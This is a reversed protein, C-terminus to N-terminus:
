KKGLLEGNPLLNVPVKIGDASRQYRVCHTFDAECYQLQWIKLAPRVKFMQFLACTTIHPCAM